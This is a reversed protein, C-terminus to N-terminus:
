GLNSVLPETTESRFVCTIHGRNFKVTITAMKFKRNVFFVNVKYLNRHLVNRCLLMEIVCTMESFIKKFKLWDSLM